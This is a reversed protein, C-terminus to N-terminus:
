GNRDGLNLEEGPVLFSFKSFVEIFRFDADLYAELSIYCSWIQFINKSDGMEAGWNSSRRQSWFHFNQFVEKFDSILMLIRKWPYIVHGYKFFQKRTM